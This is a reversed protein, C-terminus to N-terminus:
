VLVTHYYPLTFTERDANLTITKRERKGGLEQPWIVDVYYTMGSRARVPLSCVFIGDANTTAAVFKKVGKTQVKVQVGPIGPGNPYRQVVVRLKTNKLPETAVKQRVASAMEGAAATASRAANSVSDPVRVDSLSRNSGASTGPVPRSDGVVVTVGREGAALDDETIRITEGRVVVTRAAHTVADDEDIVITEHHMEPYNVPVPVRYHPPAAVAQGDANLEDLSQARNSDYGLKRALKDRDTASRQVQRRVFSATQSVVQGAPSFQGPPSSPDLNELPYDAKLAFIGITLSLWEIRTETDASPLIASIGNSDALGSSDLLDYLAVRVLAPNAAIRGFDNLTPTDLADTALLLAKARSESLAVGGSKRGIYTALQAGFAALQEDKISRLLRGAANDM